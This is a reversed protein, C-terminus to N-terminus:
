KASSVPKAADPEGSDAPQAHSSGCCPVALIGGVIDHTVNIKM